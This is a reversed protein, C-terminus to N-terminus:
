PPVPVVIGLAVGIVGFQFRLAKHNHMANLVTFTAQALQNRHPITVRPKSSAIGYCSKLTDFPLFTHTYVSDTSLSQDQVKSQPSWPDYVEELM